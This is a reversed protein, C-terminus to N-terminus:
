TSPSSNLSGLQFNMRTLHGADVRECIALPGVDFSVSLPPPSRRGPGHGLIRLFKRPISPAIWSSPGPRSSGASTAPAPNSGVVELNHAERAVPSSWGAANSKAVLMDRQWPPM